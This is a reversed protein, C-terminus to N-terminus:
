GQYGTNAWRPKGDWVNLWQNDFESCGRVVATGRRNMYVKFPKTGRVCRCTEDAVVHYTRMPDGDVVVSEIEQITLTKATRGLVKYFHVDTCNYGCTGYLIDGINYRDKKEFIGKKLDNWVMADIVAPDDDDLDIHGNHEELYKEGSLAVRMMLAVDKDNTMTTIM